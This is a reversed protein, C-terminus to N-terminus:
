GKMQGYKSHMDKPLARTLEEKCKQITREWKKRLTPDRTNNVNFRFDVANPYKNNGLRTEITRINSALSLKKRYLTKLKLYVPKADPPYQDRENTRRNSSTGPSNRSKRKRSNTPLNELKMHAEMLNALTEASLRTTSPIPTDSGSPCTFNIDIRSAADVITTQSNSKSAASM